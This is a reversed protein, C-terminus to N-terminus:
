PESLAAVLLRTLRVLSEEHIREARTHASEYGVGVNIPLLGMSALWNADCGDRMRVCTVPGVGREMRSRVAHLWSSARVDYAPYVLEARVDRPETSRELEAVWSRYRAKAIRGDVDPSFWVAVEAECGTDSPVFRVLECTLGFGTRVTAEQLARWVSFRDAEGRAAYRLWVRAQGYGAEVLTGVPAEADVVLARRASFAIRRSARVGASGLEEGASLLIHIPPHRRGERLIRAMGAMVAAVGAKDDAGLPVDNGSEMWGDSRRRVDPVGAWRTDLHACVLVPDLAPDGPAFAWLNASVTDGLSVPEWAVSLGMDEMWAACARGARRESGSPSDIRLLELFFALASKDDAARSEGSM